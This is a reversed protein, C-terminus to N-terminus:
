TLDVEVVVVVNTMVVVAKWWEVGGNDGGGDGDGSDCSRGDADGGGEAVVLKTAVAVVEM